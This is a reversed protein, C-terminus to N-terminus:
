TNAASPNSSVPEVTLTSGYGSPRWSPKTHSWYVVRTYRVPLRALSGARPTITEPSTADNGGTSSANAQVCAVSTGIIRPCTFKKMSNSTHKKRDCAANSTLGVPLAFQPWRVGCLPLRAGRRVFGQM